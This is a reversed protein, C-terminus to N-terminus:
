SPTRPHTHRAHFHTQPQEIPPCFSLINALKENETRIVNLFNDRNKNQCRSIWCHLKSWSLNKGVSAITHILSTSEDSIHDFWLRRSRKPSSFNRVELVQNKLFNFFIPIRTFPDFSLRRKQVVNSAVRVDLSETAHAALCEIALDGIALDCTTSLTFAASEKCFRHPLWKALNKRMRLHKWPTESVAIAVGIHAVPTFVSCRTARVNEWYQQHEASSPVRWVYMRAHPELSLDFWHCPQSARKRLLWGMECCTECVARRCAQGMKWWNTGRWRLRCRVWQQSSDPSRGAGRRKTSSAGWVSKSGLDQM